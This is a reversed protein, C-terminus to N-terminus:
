YKRGMFEEQALAEAEDQKGQFLSARIQSLHQSAGQRHYDTPEGTWLNEEHSQIHEKSPDGNIMACLRGNGIPLAETWTTAPQEYWLTLTKESQNESRCGPLVQFLICIGILTSTKYFINTFGQNDGIM